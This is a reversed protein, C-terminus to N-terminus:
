LYLKNRYVIKGLCSSALSSAYVYDGVSNGPAATVFGYKTKGSSTTWKVRFGLSYTGRPQALTKKIYITQGAKVKSVTQIKKEDVNQLIIFKEDAIYKKSISNGCM